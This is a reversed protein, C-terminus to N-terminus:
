GPYAALGHELCDLAANLKDLNLVYALRVENRGLGPTLYFGAAPSVMLTHGQYDFEELLWQGFRGADDVPLRAMVYFAGGPVPCWVGPMARLRRVMLDRRARYEAKTHAFYSDPLEAAAEGMLQALAPASVRMQAFRLAADQVAANKTVLAGLRAGCASYRKSITDVVVVHEAAGPLQLASTAFGEYCYERYAEDSIFFLDHRRCLDLLQQLEVESYVYGTPNSPNCVMIARTRPTMVQEFAALPPLAFGEDLTSPVPVIRVGTAIAFSIYAGYFPEPIIIEDGPNLCSMLAFFIAESGGATVLIDAPEAPIQNRQYYAALKQRYTDSGASPSYELVRIDAARVAALMEPPTEVDPQGINLHYVGVGRRKAADAYPTLKRYPSMPMDRGRQSIEM